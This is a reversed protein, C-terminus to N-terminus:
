PHGQCEDTRDHKQPVHELILVVKALVLAGILVMPFRGFRIQYDELVLVKLAM